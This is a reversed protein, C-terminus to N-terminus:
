DKKCINYEFERIECNQFGTPLLIGEHGIGNFYAHIARIVGGHTILLINKDFHEQKLKDLFSWVRNCLTTVSEGNSLELNKHYDYFDNVPFDLEQPKKGELEGWGREIIAEKYFVPIGPNIIELTKRTRKLPSCFIMDIPYRKVKESAERAQKEGTKNLEIDMRGQIREEINWDTQGHRMVYLHM